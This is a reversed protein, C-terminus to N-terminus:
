FGDAPGQGVRDLDGVSPMQPVAQALRGASLDGRVAGAPGFGAAQLVSGASRAGTFAPVLDVGQEILVNAQELAGTPQVHRQVRDFAVGTSGFRFPHLTSRLVPRRQYVGVSVVQPLAALLFGGDTIELQEPLDFGESVGAAHVQEDSVDGLASDFTIAWRDRWASQGAEHQGVRIM